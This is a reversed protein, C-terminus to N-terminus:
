SQRTGIRYITYRREVSLMSFLGFTVTGGIWILVSVAEQLTSMSTSWLFAAFLWNLLVLLIWIIGPKSLNARERMTAIELPHASIERFAAEAAANAKGTRRALMYVIAAVIMLAGLAVLWGAATLTGLRAALGVQDPSM